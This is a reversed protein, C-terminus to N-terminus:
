RDRDGDRGEVRGRAAGPDAAAGPPRAAAVLEDSGPREAAMDHLLHARVRETRREVPPGDVELVVGSSTRLEVIWGNTLHSPADLSLLAIFGHRRSAADEFAAYREQIDLREHRYARGLLDARAGEPSVAVLSALTDDADHVWGRIWFSEHDLAYIAEVDVAYPDDDTAVARPLQERLGERVRALRGALAMAGPGRLDGAVSALIFELVRARQDADLGSLENRILALLAPEGLELEPVQASAHGVSIGGAEGGGGATPPLHGLCCAAAPAMRATPRRRWMWRSAGRGDGQRGAWRRRGGPHRPQQALRRAPRNCDHRLSGPARSRPAGAARPLHQAPERRPQGHRLGRPHRSAAIGVAGPTTIARELVRALSRADGARFHLGNVGDTVKEAMGGIDSCIVPREHLFAEQIVLPSNEWWRSPVVVWDVEAMLRPLDDHDYKGALTVNNPGDHDQELLADFDDRFEQPQLELNAGHLWLHADVGREGLQAMAKLLVDVGKFHNLQGFFGIRNRAGDAAPM